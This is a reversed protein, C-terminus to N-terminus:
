DWPIDLLEKWFANRRYTYDCLICGLIDRQESLPITDAVELALAPEGCFAAACGTEISTGVPTRHKLAIRRAGGQGETRARELHQRAQAQQGIKHYAHAMNTRQLVRFRGIPVAAILQEAAEPQGWETYAQVLLHTTGYDFRLIVRVEGYPTSLRLTDPARRNLQGQLFGDQLLRTRLADAFTQADQTRGRKHLARAIQALEVDRCEGLRALLRLGHEVQGQEILTRVLYMEVERRSSEPVFAIFARLRGVDGRQRYYESVRWVASARWEDPLGRVFEAATESRESVSSHSIILTLTNLLYLSHMPDAPRLFIARAHDFSRQAADSRGAEAYLRGLHARAFAKIPDTRIQQVTQEAAQWDGKRAQLIAQYVTLHERYSETEAYRQCRSLWHPLDYEVCAIGIAEIEWYSLPRLASERLFPFKELLTTITDTRKSRALTQAILWEVQETESMQAFRQADLPELRVANRSSWWVTGAIGVVLLGLLWMWRRM